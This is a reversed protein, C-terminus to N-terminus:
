FRAGFSRFEGTAAARSELVDEVRAAPPGRRCWGRLADLAQPEGEAVLEVAGDHTNRVWGTLGLRQAEDIAQARFFVGQVRGRITLHMRQM